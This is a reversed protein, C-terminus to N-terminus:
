DNPASHRFYPLRSPRMHYHYCAAKLSRKMASQTTGYWENIGDTSATGGGSVIFWYLDCQM